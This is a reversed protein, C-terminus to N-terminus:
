PLDAGLCKLDISRSSPTTHGGEPCLYFGVGFRYFPLFLGKFNRVAGTEDKFRGSFLGNKQNFTLNVGPVSVTPKGGVGSIAAIPEGEARLFAGDFLANWDAPPDYRAAKGELDVVFPPTAGRGSSKGPHAWYALAVAAEGSNPVWAAVGAVVGRKNYLPKYLVFFAAEGPVIGYWLIKSSGSVSTGDALLGGYKVSSTRSVISCSVYGYGTPAGPMAKLAVARLGLGYLGAVSEADERPMVQAGLMFLGDATSGAVFTPAVALTMMAQAGSKLVVTRATEDGSEWVGRLPRKSGGTEIRGSIAGSASVKFSFTGRLRVPVQNDYVFGFFEGKAFEPCPLVEILVTLEAPAEGGGTAMLKVKFTGARKPAGTVLGDSSRIRLGSPLGKASYRRAGGSSGVWDTASFSASLYQHLVIKPMIPLMEKLNGSVISSARGAALDGQGDASVGRPVAVAMGACLLLTVVVSEASVRCKM